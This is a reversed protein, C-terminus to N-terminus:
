DFFGAAFSKMSSVFNNAVTKTSGKEISPTTEVLSPPEARRVPVNGQSLLLAELRAIQEHLKQDPQATQAPQLGEKLWPFLELLVDARGQKLDLFLRLADRITSTYARQNKLEVIQQALEREDRKSVDLWFKQMVRYTM